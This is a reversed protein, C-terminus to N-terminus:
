EAQGSGLTQTSQQKFTVAIGFKKQLNELCARLLDRPKDEINCLEVCISPKTEDSNESYEEESEPAEADSGGLISEKKGTSLRKLGRFSSEEKAPAGMKIILGKGIM